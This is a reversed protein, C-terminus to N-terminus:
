TAEFDRVVDAVSWGVEKRLASDVDDVFGELAPRLQAEAVDFSTGDHMVLTFIGDGPCAAFSPEEEMNMSVFRFPLAFNNRYLQVALELVPFFADRWAREGVEITLTAQFGIYLDLAAVADVEAEANSISIRLTDTM